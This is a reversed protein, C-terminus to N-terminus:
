LGLGRAIGRVAKEYEEPTAEPHTREWEQKQRIYEREAAQAIFKSGRDMVGELTDPVEIEPYQKDGERRTVLFTQPLDFAPDWTQRVPVSPLTPKRQRVAM